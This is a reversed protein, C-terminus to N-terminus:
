ADAAGRGGRQLRRIGTALVGDITPDQTLATMVQQQAEHLQAGNVHLVTM